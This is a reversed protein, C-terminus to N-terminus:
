CACKNNKQMETLTKDSTLSDKNRWDFRLYKDCLNENIKNLNTKIFDLHHQKQPFQHLELLRVLLEYEDSSVFFNEKIQRHAVLESIFDEDVDEIQYSIDFLFILFGNLEFRVWTRYEQKKKNTKRVIRIEYDDKYEKTFVLIKEKIKEYNQKECVIDIDKNLPYQAPFDKPMYPVDYKTIAYKCDSINDLAKSIHIPKLNFLKSIHENHAYNDGIHMVIDHFYNEVKDKYANRIIRKIMEGERSLTKLAVDKLRFKPHEIELEIIRIKKEPYSAMIDIKKEIKWDEIDDVAYIGKVIADFQYDDYVIDQYNLVNYLVKLLETIEDFYNQVPPWLTCVFPKLIQKKIEYFKGIILNIEEFSFKNEIFWDIGYQIDRSQPEICCSIEYMKHYLGLAIRHSGDVLCLNSDLLICSDKQYGAEYSQILTKFKDLSEKGIRAAQMKEYLVFGFENKGYYNEIALYRVIIDYRNFVEKNEQFFLERVDVIAFKNSPQLPAESKPIRQLGLYNLFKKAYKKLTEKVKNKVIEKLMKAKKLIAAVNINKREINKLYKLHVAYLNNMKYQIESKSIRFLARVFEDGEILVFGYKSFLNQLSKLSFHYIHANQLYLLFDRYVNHINLVGPVEIYIVTNENSIQRIRLLEKELDLIHELVHSYIIIDPSKNFEFDHITGYNLSLNFREKGYNLYSKGLDLGQVSAGGDSFAKLIGGASCGIEVVFKNNFDNIKLHYKIFNCILIGHSYQKNFYSDTSVESASYLKRYERDYFENYSLQTMRPSTILLGCKKCIVTTCELGYRDKEALILFKDANNCVPCIVTEFSYIKNKIKEEIDKKTQIQVENLNALNKGDNKYRKSLMNEKLEL